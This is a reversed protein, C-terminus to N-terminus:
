VVRCINRRFVFRGPYVARVRGEFQLPSRRVSCNLIVAVTMALQLAFCDPFTSRQEGSQKLSVSECHHLAEAKCFGGFAIFLDKM